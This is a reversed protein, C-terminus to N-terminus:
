QEKPAPLQPGDTFSMRPGPMMYTKANPDRRKQNHEAVTYGTLYILYDRVMRNPKPLLTGNYTTRGNVIRQWVKEVADIGDENGVTSPFRELETEILRAAIEVIAGQSWNERM